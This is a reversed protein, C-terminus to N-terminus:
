VFHPLQNCASCGFGLSLRPALLASRLLTKTVRTTAPLGCGDQTWNGMHDGGCMCITASERASFPSCITLVHSRGLKM